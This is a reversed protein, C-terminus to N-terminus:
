QVAFKVSAYFTYQTSGWGSGNTNPVSFWASQLFYGSAFGPAGYSSESLGQIGGVKLGAAQALAQAKARADSVLLPLATQHAAEVAAPSATLSAAYQISTIPDPPEAKMADLRRAFDKLNGPAVTFSIAYSVQSAPPPPYASNNPGAAVGVVTLNQIGVKRLAETVDGQTADLGATAVVLFEAQDPTINVTRTVSTVLGDAVQAACVAAFLLPLTLLKM